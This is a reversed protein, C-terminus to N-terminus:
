CTHTQAHRHTREYVCMCGGLYICVSCSECMQIYMCMTSDVSNWATQARLKRLLHSRYKRGSPGPETSMWPGEQVAVVSLNIIRRKEASKWKDESGQAAKMSHANPCPDPSGFHQMNTPVVRANLIHPKLKHLLEVTRSADSAAAFQQMDIRTKTHPAPTSINIPSAQASQKPVSMKLIPSMRAYGELKIPVYSEIDQVQIYICTYIYFYVHMYTYIYIYICVCM